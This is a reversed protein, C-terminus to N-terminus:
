LVGHDAYDASAQGGHRHMKPALKEGLDFMLQKEKELQLGIRVDQGVCVHIAMVIVIVVWKDGNAHLGKDVALRVIAAQKSLV